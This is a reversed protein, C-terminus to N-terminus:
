QETQAATTEGIVVPEAAEAPGAAAEELERETRSPEISVVIADAPTVMTFGEPLTVDGATFHEHLGLESVDVEIHEPISGAPGEIELQHTVVDMVGGSDRIGRPVGATIVPLTATITERASVRQLDAHLVRRSVPHYQVARVLATEGSKAGGSLTIIANRGSRHLLEEFAHADVAAHEPAAGHGYLVVPIKGAHRLANAGTTGIKVRSETSLKLEKAPM